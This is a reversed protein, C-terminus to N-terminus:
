SDPWLPLVTRPYRNEDGHWIGLGSHGTSRLWIDISTSMCIWTTGFNRGSDFVRVAKELSQLQLDTPDGNMLLSRWEEAVRQMAHWSPDSRPGEYTALISEYYQCCQEATKLCVAHDVQPVSM